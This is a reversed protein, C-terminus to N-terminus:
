KLEAMYYFKSTKIKVKYYLILNIFHGKNYSVEKTERWGRVEQTNREEIHSLSMVKRFSINQRTKSFKRNTELYKM